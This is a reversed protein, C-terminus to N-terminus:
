ILSEESFRGGCSPIDPHQAVVEKKCHPCQYHAIQYEIAEVPQPEPIEEITKREIRTPEGLRNQCDPCKELSVEVIRDPIPQPRTTGKHRRTRGLKKPNSNSPNPFKKLCSPPTNANEYRALRKELQKIRVELEKVIKCNACDIKGLETVEAM